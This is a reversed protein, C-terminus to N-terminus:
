NNQGNFAALPFKRALNVISQGILPGNSQQYGGSLLMLIPSKTEFAFRFVLEDRAIVGQPTVQLNGLRDGKLIDTGANYIIIDPEFVARSKWLVAEVKELYSEDSDYSSVEVEIDIFQKAENDRPFIWANYVDIIFIQRRSERTPSISQNNPKGDEPALGKASELNYKAYMRAKDREHGNGQHADLDVILVRKVKDDHFKWLHEIALGIDNYFCFGSGGNAHAHHFGGGVNIGVGRDLAICAAQLTGQVAYLFRRLALVRLVASPTWFLPIEVIQSIYVSYNLKILHGLGVRSYLFAYDPASAPVHRLLGLDRTQEGLTRIVKEYKCADFPHRKEIGLVRLNYVDSYVLSSHRHFQQHIKPHGHFGSFCMELSSYFLKLLIEYIIPYLFIACVAVLVLWWLKIAGFILLGILGLEIILYSFSLLEM